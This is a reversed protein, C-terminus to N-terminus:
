NTQCNDSCGRVYKKEPQVRNEKDLECALQDVSHVDWMYYTGRRGWLVKAPIIFRLANGTKYCVFIWM